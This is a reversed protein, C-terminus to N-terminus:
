RIKRLSQIMKDPDFIHLHDARTWGDDDPCVREYLENDEWQVHVYKWGNHAILESIAIGFRISSGDWIQYVPNNVYSTKKM